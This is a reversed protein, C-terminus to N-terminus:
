SCLHCTSGYGLHDETEHWRTKYFDDYPLDTLLLRFAIAHHYDDKALPLGSIIREAIFDRLYVTREGFQSYFPTLGSFASHAEYLRQKWYADLAEEPSIQKDKHKKYINM